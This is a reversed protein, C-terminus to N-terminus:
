EIYKVGRKRAFRPIFIKRGYGISGAMVLLSVPILIPSVIVIILPTLFSFCLYYVVKAFGISAKTRAIRIEDSVTKNKVM